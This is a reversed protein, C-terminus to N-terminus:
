SRVVRISVSCRCQIHHPPRLRPGDPTHFPETLGVGNRNRSPIPGCRPCLRNDPSVVWYRRAGAPVLGQQQAQEWLMQQGHSASDMTETRTIAEARQQKLQAIRRAVLQKVDATKTGSAELQQRYRQVSQAQRETLGIMAELDTMTQHPSAGGEVSHNIITRIAQRTSEDVDVVLQSSREQAYRAAGENVHGFVVEVETENLEGRGQELPQRAAEAGNVAMEELIPRMAERLAETMGNLVPELLAQLATLDQVELARLIAQRDLPSGAERLIAQVVRVLEAYGRDAVDHVAQWDPAGRGSPEQDVFRQKQIAIWM